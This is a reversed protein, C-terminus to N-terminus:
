FPRSLFEMLTRRKDRSVPVQRNGTLTICGGEGDTLKNVRSYEQIHKLNVLYSRHVRFFNYDSLLEEFEKLTRTILLHDEELYIHTYNGEAKCYIISSVQVFDLGQTTPLGIKHLGANLNKQNEILNQLPLNFTASKRREMLKNEARQVAQVLEDVNLPKTLYDLASVRIARVAYEHHATTFIIEFHINEIKQLLDFGTENQLIIDLFVLDPKERNILAVADEVNGAMEVVAVQKCYSSLLNKLLKRSKAEDDIIIARIKSNEM